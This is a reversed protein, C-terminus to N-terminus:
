FHVCLHECIGWLHWSLLRGLLGGTLFHNFFQTVDLCHFIKVAGFVFSSCVLSFVHFFRLHMLKHFFGVEFPQKCSSESQTVYQSLSFTHSLILVQEAWPKHFLHCVSFDKSLSMMRHYQLSRCIIVCKDLATSHEGGQTGESVTSKPHCCHTWYSNKLQM